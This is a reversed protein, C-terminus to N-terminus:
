DGGVHDGVEQDLVDWGPAPVSWGVISSQRRTLTLGRRRRGNVDREATRSRARSRTTFIPQGGGPRPRVMVVDFRGKRGVLAGARRGPHRAPRARRRPAITSEAATAM